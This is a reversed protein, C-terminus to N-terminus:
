VRKQIKFIRQEIDWLKKEEDEAGKAQQEKKLSAEKINETALDLQIQTM